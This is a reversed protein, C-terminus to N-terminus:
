LSNNSTRILYGEQVAAVTAIICIIIGSFKIEVFTITLPFIFLVAGTIKNLVTHKVVMEKWIVYGSIINVAKKVAILSIWIWLWVPINMIPLLKIFCDAVFVFDAAFDLKSGLKSVTNTKRAVTGDIMDTFGATLYLFYFGPSLAPVFLLMLGCFIRCITIINAM